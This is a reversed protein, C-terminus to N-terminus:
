RGLAHLSGGLEGDCSARQAASRRTGNGRGAVELRQEPASFAPREISSTGRRLGAVKQMNQQTLGSIERPGVEQAFIQGDRPPDIRTSM